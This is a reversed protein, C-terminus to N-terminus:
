PKRYRKPMLNTRKSASRADPIPPFREMLMYWNGIVLHGQGLLAGTPVAGGVLLWYLYPGLYLCTHGASPEFGM